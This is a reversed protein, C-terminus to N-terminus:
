FNILFQLKNHKRRKRAVPLGAQRELRAEVYDNCSM